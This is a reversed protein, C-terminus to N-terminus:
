APLAQLQTLLRARGSRELWTGFDMLNGLAARLPALDTDFYAENAWTYVKAAEPSHDWLVELPIQTHPVPRGAAVSLADAIQPTTLKDGTIEMARGLYQDPQAFALAAFAGIDDIAILQMVLDDRWPVHLSGNQLFRAPSTFDEMFGAPRLITAPVGLDRIHEEIQWKDISGWGHELYFRNQSEAGGVSSYVLHLVDAAKAADAINKGQAVQNDNASQVSYVGYAGRVAADCSGRDDLDGLVLEAGAAALAAAAPTTDDRVLARVQWGDALLHRATAGGQNGTAGTVLITKGHTDM